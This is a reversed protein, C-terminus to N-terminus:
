QESSCGCDKAVVAKRTEQGDEKVPDKAGRIPYKPSKPARAGPLTPRAAKRVNPRKQWVTPTLSLFALVSRNRFIMKMPM